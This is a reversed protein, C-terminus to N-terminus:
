AAHMTKVSFLEDSRFVPGDVCVRKYIFGEAVDAKVAVACGVCIGFGCAMPSELSLQAPIRYESAIESVRDLMPEPGCALIEANNTRMRTLHEELPTTVFGPSGHSGDLTTATISETGILKVYDDLGCLDGKSAGGIFLRVARGRAKEREALMYLAPSGAGGAVLLAEGSGESFTNGLAGLFDVSDGPRLDGLAGTGRGIVQYIFEAHTAGEGTECRYFAMARRLLPEVLGHPKIMAFQAPLVEIMRGLNLRLQGYERGSASRSM